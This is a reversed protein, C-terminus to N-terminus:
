IQGEKPAGEKDALRDTMGDVFVVRNSSCIRPVQSGLLLLLFFLIKLDESGILVCSVCSFHRQLMGEGGVGGRKRLM